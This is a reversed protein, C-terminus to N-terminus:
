KEIDQIGKTMIKYLELWHSHSKLLHLHGEITVKDGRIAPGTQMDVPRNSQVKLATEQILPKLLEFPVSREHLLSAAVHYCYNTFNNAFVAALHLQSRQEDDIKYVKPSINQALGLLQESDNSSNAYICIPVEAWNISKEISFSQLPYLVGFREFHAALVTSSTAGSTHVVLAKTRIQAAVEEIADDNVALIILGTVKLKSLDQIPEADVLQALKTSKQVQRSFVQVINLGLAHLKRALHYGVNGTGIISVKGFKKSM